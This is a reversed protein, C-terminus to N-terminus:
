STPGEKLPPGVERRFNVQAVQAGHGALMKGKKLGVYTQWVGYVIQASFITLSPSM